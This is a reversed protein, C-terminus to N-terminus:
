LVCPNLARRCLEHTVGMAPVYDTLGYPCIVAALDERIPHM